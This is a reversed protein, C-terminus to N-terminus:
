SENGGDGWVDWKGFTHWADGMQSVVSVIHILSAITYNSMM